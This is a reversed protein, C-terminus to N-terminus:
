ERFVAHLADNDINNQLMHNIRTSIQEAGTSVDDMIEAMADFYRVLGRVDELLRRYRNYFVPDSCRRAADVSDYLQQAVRRDEQLEAAHLRLRTTDIYIEGDM